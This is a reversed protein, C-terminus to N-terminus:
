TFEHQKKRILRNLLADVTPKIIKRLKRYATMLDNNKELKSIDLQDIIIWRSNLM